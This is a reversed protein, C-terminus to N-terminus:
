LKADNQDLIDLYPSLDLFFKKAVSAGFHCGPPSIKKKLKEGYKSIKSWKSGVKRLPMKESKAENGLTFNCVKQCHFRIETKFQATAKQYINM